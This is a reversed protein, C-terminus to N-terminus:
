GLVKHMLSVINKIFGGRFSLLHKSSLFGKHMKYVGDVCFRAKFVNFFLILFFSFVLLKEAKLGNSIPTKFHEGQWAATM